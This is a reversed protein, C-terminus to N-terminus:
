SCVVTALLTADVLLRHVNFTEVLTIPEIFVISLTRILVVVLKVFPELAVKATLGHISVVQARSWSFVVVPSSLVARVHTVQLPVMVVVGVVGQPGLPVRHPLAVSGSEESGLPRSSSSIVISAFSTFFMIYMGLRVSQNVALQVVVAVTEIPVIVPDVDKSLEMVM